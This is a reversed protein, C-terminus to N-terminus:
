YGDEVRGHWLCWWDGQPVESPPVYVQVVVYPPPPPLLVGCWYQYVWIWMLHHIGLGFYCHGLPVCFPLWGLCLWVDDRIVYTDYWWVSM